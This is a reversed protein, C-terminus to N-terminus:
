GNNAKFEEALSALNGQMWLPLNDPHLKRIGVGGLLPNETITLGGVISSDPVDGSSSSEGSEGVGLYAAVLEHTPPNKRWYKWLSFVENFPCSGVQDWTWGLATM